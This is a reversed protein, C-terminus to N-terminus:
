DGPVNVGPLGDSVDGRLSDPVCPSGPPCPSGRPVGTGVRAFLMGFSFLADVAGGVVAFLVVALIFGVPRRAAQAAPPGIHGAAPPWGEYAGMTRGGEGPPAKPRTDLGPDGFM